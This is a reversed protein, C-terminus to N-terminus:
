CKALEETALLVLWTQLQTIYFMVWTYAKLSETNTLSAHYPDALVCNYPITFMETKTWPCFARYRTFM